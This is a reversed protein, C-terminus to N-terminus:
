ARPARLWGFAAVAIEISGREIRSKGLAFVGDFTEPDPLDETEAAPLRM